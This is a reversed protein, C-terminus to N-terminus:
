ASGTGRSRKTGATAQAKAMSMLVTTHLPKQEPDYAYLDQIDPQNPSLVQRPNSVPPHSLVSATFLSLFLISLHM